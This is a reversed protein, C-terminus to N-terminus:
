KSELAALRAELKEIIEQQEQIAKVLVPTIRGYDIGWPREQPDDGGVGVAEPMIFYLEQAYLGIEKVGLNCLREYRKPLMQQVLVLGDFSEPNTKLREDSSNVYTVSNATANIQVSGCIDNSGDRYVLGDAGSGSTVDVRKITTTGNSTAQFGGNVSLTGSADIRMREIAGSTNAAKTLFTIYSNANDSTLQIQSPAKNADYLQWGGSYYQNQSIYFTTSDVEMQTKLSQVAAAAYTMAGNVILKSDADDNFTSGFRGRGIVDMGSADVVVRQVGATSLGLVGASVLYVGTGTSDNFAFSPAAATGAPARKNDSLIPGTIASSSM